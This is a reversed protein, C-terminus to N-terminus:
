NQMGFPNACHRILVVVVICAKYSARVKDGERVAGRDINRECRRERERDNHTQAKPRHSQRPIASREMATFRDITRRMRIINM